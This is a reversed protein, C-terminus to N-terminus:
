NETDNNHDLIDDFNSFDKSEIVIQISLQDNSKNNPDVHRNRLCEEFYPPYVTGHSPICPIIFGGSFKRGQCHKMNM